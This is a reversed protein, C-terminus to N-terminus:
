AFPSTEIELEVTELQQKMKTETLLGAQTGIASVVSSANITGARLATPLDLGEVLAWTVGTGFADGAGTTDVVKAEKIVPCHCINKGDSATTGNSGNTICVNQVGAKILKKIADNIEETKTFKLAEEKNLLVLNAQSLLQANHTHEMGIDIQCGGPNWTFCISEDSTLIEIIDDQIVCSGEQIHNLYIWDMQAAAEKSFNADHLHENAGPEYLITREGSLASLIISFSSVEGDVITACSTDVGEKKLNEILKEGWQDNGVVGCFKADCGLRSLGTSTNSAGGGCTEIVNEVRIKDGIPLHFVKKGVESQVLEKKTQIFLDYTAGGISITKKKM